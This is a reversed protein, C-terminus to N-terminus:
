FITNCSDFTHTSSESFPHIVEAPSATRTRNSTSLIEVEHRSLKTVVPRTRGASRSIERSMRSDIGQKILVFSSSSQQLIFSYNQAGCFKRPKCALNHTDGVEPYSIEVRKGSVM